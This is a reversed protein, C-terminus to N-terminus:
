GVGHAARELGSCVADFAEDPSLPDVRLRVYGPRACFLNAVGAAALRGSLAEGRDPGPRLCVVGSRPPRALDIGAQGAALVLRSRRALLREAHVDYGARGLGQIVAWAAAIPSFARDGAVSSSAYPFGDWDATSFQTPAALAADAFCLASLSPPAYGFKHLDVSLSSVGPHAFAAARTEGELRDLFPFLMGGICADVHCQLGAALALGAIAAVPDCAGSGWAPASAILLIVRGDIARAFAEPDAADDPTCDTLEVEVDLMRAAKRVAPHVNGAAVIAPRGGGALPRGAEGCPHGSAPERRGLGRAHLFAGPRLGTAALVQAKLEAEVAECIETQGARVGVFLPAAFRAIDRPHSTAPAGAAGREAGAGAAIASLREGLAGLPLGRSRSGPAVDATM